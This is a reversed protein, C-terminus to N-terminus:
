VGGSRGVGVQRMFERIISPEPERPAAPPPASPLERDARPLLLRFTTGEGPTSQVEIHGRLAQVLSKVIYLGIGTGGFRRVDGSEAQWFRDFCHEVGDPWMGVGHDRVEIVAHDSTSALTLEIVKDDSSYKAANDLLHDLITRVADPDALAQPVDDAIDIAVSRGIGNAISTAAEDIAPSLDCPAPDLEITGAEIRSSMLLRNVIGTLQRAREHIAGLGQNRITEDLDHQRLMLESYGLIVTLPTKLEHSATALFLTKAEDAQVLKTIDRFSHVVEVVRDGDDLVPAAHALLPQRQGDSTARWVMVDGSDEIFELHARLLACGESCDLEGIDRRLGLVDTCTAGVADVATCAFTRTAADNWERVRGRPSTVVVAEAVGTLIAGAKDRAHGLVSSMKRREERVSGLLLAAMGLTVPYVAVTFAPIGLERHVLPPVALVGMAAVSALLGCLWGCIYSYYSVVLLLGALVLGTSAPYALLVVATFGCDVLLGAVDAAKGPRRREVFQVLGALPLFGLGVVSAVRESSWTADEALPSAVVVALAAVFRLVGVLRRVGTAGTEGSIVVRRIQDEFQDVPKAERNM